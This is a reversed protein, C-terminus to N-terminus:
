NAYSQGTLIIECKDPLGSIWVGNMNEDVVKVKYQKIQKSEGIAKAALDGEEDITLASLPVTHSKIDAIKIQLKIAEGDAVGIQANDAVAKVLFTGTAEDASSAMFTLKAPTTADTSTVIIAEKSNLVANRDKASLYAQAEISSLDLFKGIVRHGAGLNSVIDGETVDIRDVVGDFPAKIITNDLATKAAALDSEATKLNNEAEQMTLPSCLKQKSLAIAAEYKLKAAKLASSMQQMKRALAEDQIQIIHDAARLKEGDSVFKKIVVGTVQPVLDVSKHAVATAPIDLYKTRIQAESLVSRVQVAQSINATEVAGQSNFVGSAMWVFALVIIGVIIQLKPAAKIKALMMISRKNQSRLMLLEAQIHKEHRILAQKIYYRIIDM